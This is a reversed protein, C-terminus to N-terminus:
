SFIDGREKKLTGIDPNRRNELYALHVLLIHPTKMMQTYIRAGIGDVDLPLQICSRCTMCGPNFKLDSQDPHITM